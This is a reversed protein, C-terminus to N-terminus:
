PLELRWPIHRVICAVSTNRYRNEIFLISKIEFIFLNQVVRECFLLIFETQGANPEFSDLYEHIHKHSFLSSQVSMWFRTKHTQM